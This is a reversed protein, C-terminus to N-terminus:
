MAEADGCWDEGRTYPWKATNVIGGPALGRTESNHRVAPAHRRCFGHAVKEHYDSNSFEGLKAKWEINEQFDWFRCASCEVNQKSM